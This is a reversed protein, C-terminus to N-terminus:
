VYDYPLQTRVAGLAQVQKSVRYKMEDPISEFYFVFSPFMKRYHKQWQRITELNENVGRQSKDAQKSIAKGERAAELKKQLATPAASRRGLGYRRSEADDVEVMQKKPPPQGYTVDRQESAHSRQRKGGVAAARLPSNTANHLNALPVRRNSMTPIVQSSPPMAVAAM